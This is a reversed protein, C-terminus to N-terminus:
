TRRRKAAAMLRNALIKRAMGPELGVAMSPYKVTRQTKVYLFAHLVTTVATDGGSSRITRDGGMVDLEWEGLGAARILEKVQAAAM